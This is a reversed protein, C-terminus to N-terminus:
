IRWIWRFSGVDAAPISARIAELVPRTRQESRAAVLVSGGRAALAVATARGLGSNAGTVLFTRGALDASV